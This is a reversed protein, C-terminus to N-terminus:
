GSPSTPPCPASPPSTLPRQGSWLRGADPLPSTAQLVTYMVYRVSANAEDIQQDTPNVPAKDSM